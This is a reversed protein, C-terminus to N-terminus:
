YYAYSSVWAAEPCRPHHSVLPSVVPLALPAATQRRPGTPRPGSIRPQIIIIMRDHDSVRVGARGCRNINKNITNSYRIKYGVSSPSCPHRSSPACECIERPDAACPLSEVQLLRDRRRGKGLSAPDLTHLRSFAPLYM